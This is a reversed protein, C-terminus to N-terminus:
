ATYIIYLTYACQCICLDGYKECRGIWKKMDTPKPPAYITANDSNSNDSNNSNNSNNSKNISNHICLKNYETEFKQSLTEAIVYVSSGIANYLMANHWIQRIDCVCHQLSQYKNRELNKQITHLDMPYKIIDGYDTLGLDIYPVPDLFLDYQIDNIYSNILEIINEKDWKMQHNSTTITSM